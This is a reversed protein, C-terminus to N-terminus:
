HQIITRSISEEGDMVFKVVYTGSTLKSTNWDVYHPGEAMSTQNVLIEVLQGGLTYAAVFVNQERNLNLEIRAAQDAPNPQIKYLDGLIEEEQPDLQDPRSPADSITSCFTNINARFTSGSNARFGPALTIQTGAEMQLDGGSQVTLTSTNTLTSAGYFHGVEDDAIIDSSFVSKNTVTGEYNAISLDADELAAENDSLGAVGMPDGFYTVSPNSWYQLRTCSTGADSCANNYAMVTRWNDTVNVYGHGFIYPTISPDVYPDHRCGYLHGFEHAYTLNGAICGYDSVCFGTSYTSGIGSALGCGGSFDTILQCLDADYLSRLAHINDMNGDSTGEFDDVADDLNGPEVYNVEVIRAIEIDHAVFSNNNANNHNQTALIIELHPDVRAGAVDDTYAVLVRIACEVLASESSRSSSGEAIPDLRPPENNSTYVNDKVRDWEDPDHDPPFNAPNEHTMVHMGDGIPHIGYLDNGLRLIARMNEGRRVADFTYQPFGDVHGSYGWHTTMSKDLYSRSINVNPADGPLELFLGTFELAEFNLDVLIHDVYQPEAMIVSLYHQQQQSLVTEVPEVLSQARLTGTVGAFLLLGLAWASRLFRTQNKLM